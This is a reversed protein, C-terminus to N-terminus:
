RILMAHFGFLLVINLGTQFADVLTTHQEDRQNKLTDRSLLMSISHTSLDWFMNHIIRQNKQALNVFRKNKKTIWVATRTHNMINLSKQSLQCNDCSKLNQKIKQKFQKCISNTMIKGCTTNILQSHNKNTQRWNKNPACKARSNTKSVKM